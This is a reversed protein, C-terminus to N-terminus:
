IVNMYPVDSEEVEIRVLNKARLYTDLAVRRRAQSPSPGIIIREIPCNEGLLAGEYLKLYPIAIHNSYRIYVGQTVSDGPISNRLYALRDECEDSFYSDKVTTIIQIFSSCVEDIPLKSLEERNAGAEVFL